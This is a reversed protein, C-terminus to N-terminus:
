HIYLFGCSIIFFTKIGPYSFAKYTLWGYTKNLKEEKVMSCAIAYMDTIYKIKELWESDPCNLRYIYERGVARLCVGISKQYTKWTLICVREKCIM